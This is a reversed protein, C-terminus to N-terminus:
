DNEGHVFNISCNRTYVYVSLKKGLVCYVVDQMKTITNRIDDRLDDVVFKCWATEGNIGEGIDFLYIGSYKHKKDIVHQLLAQLTIKEENAM